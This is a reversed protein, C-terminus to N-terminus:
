RSIPTTRKVRFGNKSGKGRRFSGSSADLTWPSPLNGAPLQLFMRFLNAARACTVNGGAFPTLRYNGRPLALKGIRDNHQVRFTGPCRTGDAPHRGRNTTAAGAASKVRFGVHGGRQTFSGTQPDLVWPRPLRGDFDQLFTAFLKAARACSLRGVALITVRYRGKPISLAGIHDNHLVQFTGPCAAGASPHRGGGGGGSPTAAKAVSFGTTSGAGRTFSATALSIVWPRPLRGDWDELFQRFLDSADACNLRSSDLVTITYAGAPLDLKGVHDHHLV